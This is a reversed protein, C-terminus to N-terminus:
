GAQDKSNFFIITNEGQIRQNFDLSRNCIARYLERSCGPHLRDHLEIILVGVRTLWDANDAFLEREGGEIDIKLIDVMDAKAMDLLAPITYAHLANPQQRTTEVVRFETNHVDPSEIQLWTDRPWLAGQIVRVGPLHATNKACLRANEADPEVALITAGSYKRAFFLSACGINAGGDIILKPALKPPLSYPQRVFFAEFVGPDSTGPRLHFHSKYRPLYVSAEPRNSYVARWNKRGLWWGFQARYDPKRQAAASSSPHPQVPQARAPSVANATASM